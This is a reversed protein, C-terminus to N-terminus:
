IPWCQENWTGALNSAILAEASRKFALQRARAEDSGSIGLQYAYGRWLNLSVTKTSDPIHNSTPPITGAENVAMRLAKLAIQAGKTLRGGKKTTSPTPKDAPVLVCATRDEIEIPELTFAFVDGGRYDRQKTVTATRLGTATEAVEIETDAAAKLLSHGRAGRSDDKGAHHIVMVSAKTKMRLQDCHRVFAGMDDPSNENGGSMARSLTDVVILALPPNSPLVAIRELLLKTDNPSRCLDIPEPIIYFPVGEASIEHQQRFATLREELGLGGEAAIYIVAGQKVERERWEWGLALHATMDLVLFTKGCGSPGYVLSMSGCDLLGTILGERKPLLHIASWPILKLRERRDAGNGKPDESWAKDAAERANVGARYADNWDKHQM